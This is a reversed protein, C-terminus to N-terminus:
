DLAAQKSQARDLAGQTERCIDELAALMPHLTLATAGARISNEIAIASNGVSSLGLNLASGKMRHALQRLNVLDGADLAIWMDQITAQWSSRFLGFLEELKGPGITDRLGHLM